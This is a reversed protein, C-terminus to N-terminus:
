NANSLWLFATRAILDHKKPAAFRGRLFGASSLAIWDDNLSVLRRALVGREFRESFELRGEFFVAGNGSSVSGACVVAGGGHDDGTFPVGRAEALRGHRADDRMGDAADLRFPHHHRGDLCDFLEERFGAPIAVLIDIEYSSFSAKETAAIATVRSSRRLGSFTFTFPPATASPWGM